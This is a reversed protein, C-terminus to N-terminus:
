LALALQEPVGTTAPELQERMAMGIFASFAPPIAEALYKWPVPRRVGMVALGQELTDVTRGGSPIRDGKSGYVGWPRGQREHQCGSSPLAFHHSSEWLRHRRVGLDFASGCTVAPNRLPSRPVNEMVWPLGSANLLTRLEDFDVLPRGASKGQADRLCRLASEGQCPPHASIADFEDLWLADGNSFRVFGDRLVQLMDAQAHPHPDHKQPRHDLDIGYPTWGAFAFGDSGVGACSGLVLLRRV